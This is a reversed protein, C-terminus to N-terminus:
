HTHLSITLLQAITTLTLHLESYWTCTNSISHQQVQTHKSVTPRTLFKNTNTSHVHVTFGGLNVMNGLCTWFANEVGRFQCNKKKKKKKKKKPM